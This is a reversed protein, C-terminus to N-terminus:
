WAMARGQDTPRDSRDIRALLEGRADRVELRDEWCRLELAGIRETWLTPVGLERLRRRLAPPSRETAPRDGTAIVILRPQVRSLFAGTAAEGSSPIGTVLVDAELGTGERRVLAAQGEPGLDPALLLSRFLM